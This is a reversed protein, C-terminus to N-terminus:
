FTMKLLKDRAAGATIISAYSWTLDKSGRENGTDKNFEEPLRGNKSHYMIRRIYSDGISLLRMHIQDYIDDGKTYVAGSVVQSVGLFDKFFSYSRRTVPIFGKTKWAVSVKYLFEAVAATTLYWPNGGPGDSRVGDYRDEHYRGIAAGIPLGNADANVKNVQYITKFSDILPKLSALVRDDTVSFSLGDGRDTQIVALINAMDLGSRLVQGNSVGSLIFGQQESWHSDLAVSLNGAQYTYWQAAYLDGLENALAAGEIMARRQAM